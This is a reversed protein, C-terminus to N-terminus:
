KKHIKEAEEFLQESYKHANMSHELAQQSLEHATRYDEKGHAEAAVAHAHAALNHLEAIRAHTSQPMMKEKGTRHLKALLTVPIIQPARLIAYGSYSYGSAMDELPKKREPTGPSRNKSTPTSIFGGERSKILARKSQNQELAL